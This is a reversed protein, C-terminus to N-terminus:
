QSWREEGFPPGLEEWKRVGPLTQLIVPSVECRSFAVPMLFNCLTLCVHLNYLNQILFLSRERIRTLLHKLVGLLIRSRGQGRRGREM